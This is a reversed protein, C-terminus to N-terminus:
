RVIKGCCESACTALRMDASSPRGPPALWGSPVRSYAGRKRSSLSKLLARRRARVRVPAGHAAIVDLLNRPRAPEVGGASARDPPPIRGCRYSRDIGMGSSVSSASILAPSPPASWRAADPPVSSSGLLGVADVLRAAGDVDAGEAAPQEVHLRRTRGAGLASPWIRRHADGPTASCARYCGPGLGLALSARVMAHCRVASACPMPYYQDYGPTQPLHASVHDTLGPM